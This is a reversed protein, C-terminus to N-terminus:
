TCDITYAPNSPKLVNRHTKTLKKKPKRVSHTFTDVAMKKGVASQSM